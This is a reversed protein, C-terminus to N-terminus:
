AAAAQEFSAMFARVRVITSVRPARGVRLRSVMGPDNVSLRGFASDSLGREACFRLVDPLFCEDHIVMDHHEGRRPARPNTPALRLPPPLTSVDFTGAAILRITELLESAPVFWEGRARHQVFRAHFRHELDHAGEISALIELDFPSSLSLSAFREHLRTTSGIKIPGDMGVPKIFYVRRM